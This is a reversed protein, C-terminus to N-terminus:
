LLKLFSMKPAESPFYSALIATTPGQEQFDTDDETAIKECNIGANM